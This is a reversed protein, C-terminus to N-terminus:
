QALLAMAQVAVLVTKAEEETSIMIDSAALKQKTADPLANYATTFARVFAEAEEHKREAIADLQKKLFRRALENKKGKFYAALTKEIVTEYDFREWTRNYYTQRRTFGVYEGNIDIISARHGWGGNYEYTHCYVTFTTGNPLTFTHQQHNYNKSM